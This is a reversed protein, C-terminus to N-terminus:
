QQMPDQVVAAAEGMVADATQGQHARGSPDSGAHAVPVDKHQQVPELPQGQGPQEM